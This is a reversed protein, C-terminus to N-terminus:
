MTAPRARVSFRAEQRRLLFGFTLGLAAWFVGLGLLSLGRFTWLVDPPLLVPDPNNPLLVFLLVDYVVLAGLALRWGRRRALIVALATGLISLALAALYLTQRYTITEPDGVGPPNAPMKLFPLVAVSWLAAGAMSLARRQPTKGPLWRQAVHFVAGFLLSWTLGYIVFGVFLGVKQVNRSLMPEEFTGEAQRRLTELEIAHDIVSETVLFHFAAAALGAVVGAVLASWLITGFSLDRM